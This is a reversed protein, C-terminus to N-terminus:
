RALLERVRGSLAGLGPPECREDGAVPAAGLRRLLPALTGDRWCDAAGALEEWVPGALDHRGARRLVDALFATWRWPTAPDAFPGKVLHRRTLLLAALEAGKARDGADARQAARHSLQIFALRRRHLGAQALADAALAPQDSAAVLWPAEAAHHPAGALGTGSFRASLGTASSLLAEHRRHRYLAKCTDVIVVNRALERVPLGAGLMSRVTAADLNLAPLRAPRGFALPELLALWRLGQDPDPRYLEMRILNIQAQLACLALEPWAATASRRLAYDIEALCVLEAEHAQGARFLQLALLNAATYLLGDDPGCDVTQKVYRLADDGAYPPREEDALFGPRYPATM